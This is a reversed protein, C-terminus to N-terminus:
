ATLTSSVADTDDLLTALQEGAGPRGLVYAGLFATVLGAITDRLDREPRGPEPDLYGRATTPDHPSLISTHTAGRLIALHCDGRGTTIGETFTRTVPDHPTGAHIDRGYRDSSSAVVGDLEAGMVLKPVTGPVALVTGDDHGLSTSGMTHAAFSVAAVVPFWAATANHLTLTGGASHGLLVVRDLDLLGALRGDADIRGLAELLPALALCTPRTGYTGARCADLDVGPTIGVSGPMIEGVLAYTVVACGLRALDEALWRYGEPGINVGPLVLVVPWPAASTDAPLEGTLRERDSGTPAAPHFVRFHITDGPEDLGPVRVSGHLARVDPNM